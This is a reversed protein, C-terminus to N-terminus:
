RRHIMLEDLYVCRSALQENEQTLLRSGMPEKEDEKEDHELDSSGEQVTEVEIRM